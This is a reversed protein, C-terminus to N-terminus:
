PKKLRSKCPRKLMNESAEDVMNEFAEDVYDYLRINCEKARTKLAEDSLSKQRRLEVKHKLAYYEESRIEVTKAYTIFSSLEITDKFYHVASDYCTHRVFKVTFYEDPLEEVDKIKMGCYPCFNYM